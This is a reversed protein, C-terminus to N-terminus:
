GHDMLEEASTTRIVRAHLVTKKRTFYTDEIRYWLEQLVMHETTNIDVEFMQNSQRNILSTLQAERMLTIKAKKNPIEMEPTNWHKISRRSKNYDTKNDTMEIEPMKWRLISKSFKEDVSQNHIGKIIERLTMRCDKYKILKSQYTLPLNFVDILGNKVMEVEERTKISDRICM